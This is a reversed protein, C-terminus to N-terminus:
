SFLILICEKIIIQRIVSEISTLGLVNGSVKHCLLDKRGIYPLEFRRSSSRM